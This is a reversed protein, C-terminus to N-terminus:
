KERVTSQAAFGDLVKTLTKRPLIALLGPGDTTLTVQDANTLNSTGISQNPSFHVEDIPWNLGTSTARMQSLPFLSFRTEPALRLTLTAPVHFVLDRKGLLVCPQHAFKVLANLASLQHDLRRGMFGLGLIMPASIHALCKEFDTTNQDTIKFLRAPPIKGLTKKGISDFDGIVKQPIQGMKVAIKAGGDAAVLTPALHLCEMIDQTKVNSAGLLTVNKLYQV